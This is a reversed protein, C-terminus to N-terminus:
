FPTSSVPEWYGHKAGMSYLEQASMTRPVERGEKVHTDKCDPNLQYVGKDIGCWVCFEETLRLPSPDLLLTLKLNPCFDAKALTM